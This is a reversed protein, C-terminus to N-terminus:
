KSWRQGGPQSFIRTCLACIVKEIKLALNHGTSNAGLAYIAVAQKDVQQKYDWSSFKFLLLHEATNHLNDDRVESVDM